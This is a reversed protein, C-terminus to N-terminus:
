GCLVLCVGHKCPEGIDADSRLVQDCCSVAAAGAPRTGGGDGGGRDHQATDDCVWPLVHRYIDESM